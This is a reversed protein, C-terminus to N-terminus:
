GSFFQWLGPLDWPDGLAGVHRCFLLLLLLLLLIVTSSWYMMPQHGFLLWFGFM